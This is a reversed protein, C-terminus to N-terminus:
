MRMIANANLKKLINKYLKQLNQTNIKHRYKTQKKLKQVYLAQKYAFYITM